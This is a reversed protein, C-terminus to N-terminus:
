ACPTLAAQPGGGTKERAPRRSCGPRSGCVLERDNGALLFVLREPDVRLQGIVDAPSRVGISLQVRSLWGGCGACAVACIM